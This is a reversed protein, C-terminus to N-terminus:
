NSDTKELLWALANLQRIGDTAGSEEDLTLLYKPHNDRIELLSRLERELVQKDAISVAVQYYEIDGALSTARFDVELLKSAGDQNQRKVRCVNVQYGRRLLELYIVNELIKGPDDITRGLIARRLGVDCAYYKPTATLIKKGKLDIQDCRYFMYSELLGQLYKHITDNSVLGKLQREINSINTEKTINDFLFRVVEALKATNRLNYRAIIDKNITNTYVSDLLYANIMELDGRHKVTQPFGSENIYQRYLAMRTTADRLNIKQDRQGVGTLYEQFSFPWVKIETYRGGLLTSLKSSFMYANSGTLYLDVNKKARLSNAVKPWEQVMQIEDLLVYNMKHPDLRHLVHQYLKPGDLFEANELIDLDIKHIQAPAVGQALLHQEFLVLIKSKGCRRVGTIIKIMESDSSWKILKRLYSPRPVLNEQM